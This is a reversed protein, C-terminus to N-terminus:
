PKLCKANTTLETSDVALSICDCPISTSGIRTSSNVPLRNVKKLSGSPKGKSNYSFYVYCVFFTVSHLPPPPSSSGVGPAVADPGGPAPSAGIDVGTDAINGDATSEGSKIQLRKEIHDVIEDSGRLMCSINTCVSIEHKGVPQTNFMSYFSAVEFVQIKPVDLYEAVENMLESTLFGNNFHQVSHLAAIIASRQKGEPFKQVWLDIEEKIERNLLSM